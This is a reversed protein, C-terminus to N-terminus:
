LQGEMAQIVRRLAGRWKDRNEPTAKDVAALCANWQQQLSDVHARFEGTAPDSLKQLRAVENKLGEVEKGAAARAQEAAKAVKENLEKAKDDLEKRAAEKADAEAKAKIKDQEAKVKAKYDRLAKQSIELREELDTTDPAEALQAEARAAQKRALELQSELHRVNDALEKATQQQEEGAESLAENEAKIRELEEKLERVSIEEVPVTEVAEKAVEEPAALLAWVRSIGIDSLTTPNSFLSGEEESKEALKMIRNAKRASFKLHQDMWNEWGGHGIRDKIVQLRKGAEILMMMSVAAVSEARAYLENTEAALVETTKEELGTVERFEVDVIESM